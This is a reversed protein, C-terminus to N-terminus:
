RNFNERKWPAGPQRYKLYEPLRSHIIAPSEIIPSDLAKQRLPGHPPTEATRRGRMTRPVNDGTTAVVLQMQLLDLRRFLDRRNLFYLTPINGTNRGLM